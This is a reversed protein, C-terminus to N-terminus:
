LCYFYPYPKRIGSQQYSPIWAFTRTSANFTSGTPRNSVSYALTDGDPDTASIQFSLEQNEDISKDGIRDLVPPKNEPPPPSCNDTVFTLCDISCSLNGSWGPGFRTQCTQNNLATGDCVESIGEDNPTQLINDGCYTCDPDQVHTCGDPCINDAKGCVPQSPSFLLGGKGRSVLGGRGSVCQSVNFTLCDSSCSLTGGKYGRTICTQNNLATGDCVEILGESNPKQIINDGCYTLKEEEKEEEKGEEEQEGLGAGSQRLMENLKARTAKGVYGTGKSLNYPSLIDQRHKEQFRIVAQLTKPGFYTTERGPSGPGTDAVRTGPDQNLMIQLYKVDISSTGYKLNTQFRFGQPIAQREGQLQALLAQLAKIAELIEQIKAKIESVTMQSIPKAVAPIPPLSQAHISIPLVFAAIVITIILVFIIITKKLNHNQV